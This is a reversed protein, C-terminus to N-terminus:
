LMKKWKLIILEVAIVGLSVLGITVYGYEAELEPMYQFNMGYWGTIVTLPFFISTLITLFQVTRNQKHDSQAQEFDRLTQCHEIAQQAMNQLREARDGFLHLLQMNEQNFYNKVNGELERAMDEMQEYYNRLRTLERRARLLRPLLNQVNGKLANEELEFLRNEYKELLEIDDDLFESFFGYLFFEPTMEQNEYKHVMRGIIKDALGDGDVFAICTENVYYTLKLPPELLHTRDPIYLSGFIYRAFVEAKCSHVGANEWGIYSPFGFRTKQLDWRDPTLTVAFFTNDTTQIRKLHRLTGTIQYYM